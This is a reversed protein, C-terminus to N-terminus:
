IPDAGLLLTYDSDFLEDYGKTQFVDRFRPSPKFEAIVLKKEKKRQTWILGMIDPTPLTRRDCKSLTANKFLFRPHPKKRGNVEFDVFCGKNRFHDELAEKVLSYYQEERMQNDAM